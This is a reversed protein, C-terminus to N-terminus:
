NGYPSLKRFKVFRKNYFSLFDGFTWSNEEFMVRLEEYRMHGIVVRDGESINALGVFAAREENSLDAVSSPELVNTQKLSSFFDTYRPFVTSSLKSLSDFYEYPFFSKHVTAQYAKLFKDYSTGAALYSTVDLFKFKDATIAAYSTGRKIVHKVGETKLLTSFLITKTVPIDYRSGNFSLVPIQSIYEEFKSAAEQDDLEEIQPLYDAYKERNLEYAMVSIATILEIFRTVLDEASGNTILCVAEQHHPVNSCVAISALQHEYTYHVHNSDTAEPPVLACEIDFVIRYDFFRLNQPIIVGHDALLDFINRNLEFTGNFYIQRTLASCSATHRKLDRNNRWTKKCKPCMYSRSYLSMDKIYSFHTDYLNLNMLNDQLLTRQVLVSVRDEAQSYVNIGVDFVRSVDELQDLAVGQFSKATTDLLTATKFTEFLQLTVTELGKIPHKFHLALCRFLCLHDIYPRGKNTVLAYLGKNNLLYGPLSIGNGIPTRPMKTVFFTANTIKVFTFRSNPYAVHQALDISGIRARAEELELPSSLTMPEAILLQNNQSSGYFHLNDGAMDRLIYSLSIKVKFATEQTYYVSSMAAQIEGVDFRAIQFNVIASLKRNLHYPKIQARFVDYIEPFREDRIYRPM